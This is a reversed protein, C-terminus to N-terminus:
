YPSHKVSNFLDVPLPIADAWSSQVLEPRYHGSANNWGNLVGKTNKGSGFTIQGTRAQGNAILKWRGDFGQRLEAKKGLSV